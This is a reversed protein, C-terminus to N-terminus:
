GVNACIAYVTITEGDIFPNNVAGAWANGFPASRSILSHNTWVGGGLVKKGAPCGADTATNGFGVVPVSQSVVEYGSVGAPGPPGQPGPQGPAGPAGDQGDAGDKGATGAIGQLGQIGQEGKDGKDGKPGQPGPDGKVGTQNFDLPTEGNKCKVAPYDIPRWTGTSQSYCTHIVGGTDPIAAWAIGGVVTAVVAGVIAALLSSRKV